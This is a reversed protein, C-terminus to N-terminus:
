PKSMDSPESIRLYFGFPDIIRFDKKGWPKM